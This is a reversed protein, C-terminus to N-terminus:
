GKAPAPIRFLMAYLVPVVVMTLVTAIILGFIITVAMAIFFADFVQM